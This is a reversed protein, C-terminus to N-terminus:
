RKSPQCQRPVKIDTLDFQTCKETAQDQLAKVHSDDNRRFEFSQLQEGAVITGSMTRKRAQLSSNLVELQRTVDVALVLSMPRYTNREQGTIWSSQSSRGGESKATEKLAELIPEYQDLVHM